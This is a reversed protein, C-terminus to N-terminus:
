HVAQSGSRHGKNHQIKRACHRYNSDSLPQRCYVIPQELEGCLAAAHLLKTDFRLGARRHAQIQAPRLGATSLPPDLQVAFAILRAHIANLAIGQPDANRGISRRSFCCHPRQKLDGRESLSPDQQM